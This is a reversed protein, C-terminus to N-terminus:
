DTVSADAPFGHNPRGPPRKWAPWGPSRMGGARRKDSRPERLRPEEEWSIKRTIRANSTQSQGDARLWVAATRTPRCFHRSGVFPRARTRPLHDGAPRGRREGTPRPPTMSCQPSAAAPGTDRAGGTRVKGHTCWRITRRVNLCLCRLREGRLYRSSVRTRVYPARTGTASPSANSADSWSRRTAPAM